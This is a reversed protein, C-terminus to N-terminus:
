VALGLARARAKASEGAAEAAKGGDDLLATSLPAAAEVARLIWRRAWESICAKNAESEAAVVKVVHDSWRSEEARWDSMFETLM